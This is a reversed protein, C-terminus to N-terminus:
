GPPWGMARGGLVHLHLHFVSQGAMRGNNLVTRYGGTINRERAIRAALLHLHGIMPGDEPLAENLSLLHKRPVVLVHTPAQPHLDEFVVALEDQHLVRAPVQGQIIQCFICDSM